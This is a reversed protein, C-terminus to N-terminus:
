DIEFDIDITMEDAITTLRAELEQEDVTSPLAVQLAAHFLPENTM